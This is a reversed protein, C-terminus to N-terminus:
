IIAIAGFYTYDYITCLNYTMFHYKKKDTSSVTKGTRVQSVLQFIRPYRHHINHQLLFLLLLSLLLLLLQSVFQFYSLFGNSLMETEKTTKHIQSIFIAQTSVGVGTTNASHSHILKKLEALTDSKALKKKKQPKGKKTLTGLENGIKYNGFDGNYYM